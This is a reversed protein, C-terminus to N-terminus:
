RPSICLTNCIGTFDMKKQIISAGTLKNIKMEVKTKPMSESFIYPAINRYSSRIKKEIDNDASIIVFNDKLTHAVYSKDSSRIIDAVMRSVILVFDDAKKYGFEKKYDEFNRFGMNYVTFDKIAGKLDNIHGKFSEIGPLKTLPHTDLDQKVRRLMVKVRAELEMPDFPKTIYDDAGFRMGELKDSLQGKASLIIIPIHQTLANEKLRKCVEYGNIGPMMLDLIIIDPTETYVKELADLGSYAKIINYRCSIISLAVLDVVHPEDDVILVTQLSSKENIRWLKAQAVGECTLLKHAKMIELYKTVTIRNHGIKKAIESSSAGFSKTSLFNLIKTKIETNLNEM